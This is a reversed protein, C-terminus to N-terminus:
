ELRHHFFPSARLHAKDEETLYTAPYEYFYGTCMLAFDHPDTWDDNECGPPHPLNFVHGLEHALGGIWGYATRLLGGQDGPTIACPRYTDPSVLGNLDSRSVITIGGWGRGLSSNSCHGFVDAYIVWVDWPSDNRVPSCFYLDRIIRNYGSHEWTM